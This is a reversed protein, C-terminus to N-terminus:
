SSTNSTIIIGLKVNRNIAGVVVVVSSPNNALHSNAWDNNSLISHMRDEHHMLDHIILGFIRLLLFSTHIVSSLITIKNAIEKEMIIMASSSM